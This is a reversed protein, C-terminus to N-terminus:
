GFIIRQWGPPKAVPVADWTYDDGDINPAAAPLPAGEILKPPKTVAVQVGKALAALVTVILPSWWFQAAPFYEALVASLAPVLAAILAAWFAGPLPFKNM